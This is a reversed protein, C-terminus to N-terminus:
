ELKLDVLRAKKYVIGISRSPSRAKLSIRLSIGSYITINIGHMTGTKPNHKLMQITIEVAM